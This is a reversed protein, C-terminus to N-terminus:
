ATRQLYFKRATQIIEMRDKFNPFYTKEAPFNSSIGFVQLSPVYIQSGYTDNMSKISMVFRLHSPSSSSYDMSVMKYIRKIM